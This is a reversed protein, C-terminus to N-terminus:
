ESDKQPYYEVGNKFWFKTGDPYIVAPKDDDRHLGGDKYWHETGNVYIVCYSEPISYDKGVYNNWEEITKFFKKKPHGGAEFWCDPHTRIFYILEDVDIGMTEEKKDTEGCLFCKNLFIIM